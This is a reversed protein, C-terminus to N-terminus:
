LHTAQRMFAPESFAYGATGMAPYVPLMAPYGMTYPHSFPSIRTGGAAATAHFTPQGRHGFAAYAYPPAAATAFPNQQRNGSSALPKLSRPTITVFKPTDASKDPIVPQKVLKNSLHVAGIGAYLLNATLAMLFAALHRAPAHPFLKLAKFSQNAVFGTLYFIGAGISYTTFDRVFLKDRM